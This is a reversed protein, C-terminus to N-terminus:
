LFYKHADNPKDDDHVLTVYIYEGEKRRYEGWLRWKCANPQRDKCNKDYCNKLNEHFTHYNCIQKIWGNEM